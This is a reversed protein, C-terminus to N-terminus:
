RSGEGLDYTGYYKEESKTLDEQLMPSYEALSKKAHM